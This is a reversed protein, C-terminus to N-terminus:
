RYIEMEFVSYGWEGNRSKGFMRLYQAEVPPFSIVRSEEEKGDSIKAATKWSTGDMSTQIEYKKASAKEWQIRVLRVKQSSDFRVQLWQPDVGHKSEWRTGTNGDVAEQAGGVDGSSSSSAEVTLVKDEPLFVLPNLEVEFVSYGWEGLRKSCFVGLYRPAVPSIKISREEGEVGDFVASVTQWNKGDESIKIEYESASAKEWTIKLTEVIRGPKLEFFVWSKDIGHISEWRTAIDGDCAKMASCEGRETSAKASVIDKNTARALEADEKDAFTACGSLMFTYIMMLPIIIRIIGSHRNLFPM